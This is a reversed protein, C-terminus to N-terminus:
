EDEETGDEINSIRCDRNADKGDDKEVSFMEIELPVQSIKQDLTLLTSANGFWPTKEFNDHELGAVTSWKKM